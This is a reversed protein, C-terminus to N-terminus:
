DRQFFAHIFHFRKTHFTGFLFPGYRNGTVAVDDYFRKSGVQDFGLNDLWWFILGDIEGGVIKM